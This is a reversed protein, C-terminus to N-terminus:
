LWQLDIGDPPREFAFALPFALAFALTLAFSWALPGVVVRAM